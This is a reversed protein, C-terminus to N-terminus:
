REKGSPYIRICVFDTLKGEPSMRGRGEGHGDATVRLISSCSWNMLLTYNQLEYNGRSTNWKLMRDDGRAIAGLEQFGLESKM